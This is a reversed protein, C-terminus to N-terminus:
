RLQGFARMEAYREPDTARIHDNEADILDRAAADVEDEFDQGTPDTAALSAADALNARARGIRARGEANALARATEEALDEDFKAIRDILTEDRDNM